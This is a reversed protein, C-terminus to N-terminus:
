EPDTPIHILDDLTKCDALDDQHISYNREHFQHHEFDVKKGGDPRKGHMVTFTISRGHEKSPHSFLVYGGGHSKPQKARGAIVREMFYHAVQWLQVGKDEEERSDYVIANYLVQRSPNLDKVKREHRELAHEGEPANKRLEGRYKCIPCAEGYMRDLCIFQLDRPGVNRHIHMDLMYAWKGDKVVPDNPGAQYPLIDIEHEGKDCYWTQVGADPQYVDPYKVGRERTEYSSETRATLEEQMSDRNSAM